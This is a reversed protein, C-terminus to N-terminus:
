WISTQNKARGRERESEKERKGKSMEAKHNREGKENEKVQRFVGTSELKREEKKKRRM